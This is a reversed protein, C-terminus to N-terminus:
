AVDTSSRRRVVGHDDVHIGKSLRVRLFVRATEQYRNLAFADSRLECFERLISDPLFPNKILDYGHSQLLTRLVGAPAAPNRAVEDALSEWQSSDAQAAFKAIAEPSIHRNGIAAHCHYHLKCTAAWALVAEPAETKAIQNFHHQDAVVQRDGLM